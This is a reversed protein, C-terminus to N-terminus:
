AFIDDDEKGETVVVADEEEGVEGDNFVEVSAGAGGIRDGDKTKQVAELLFTVGRIKEPVISGDSQKVNVTTLYSMATVALRGYCGSYIDSEVDDLPKRAPGVCVPKNKSKATISIHGAFDPYKESDKADGDRFPHQIDKLKIEAGWTERAAELVATKLATMDADKPILLTTKYKGTAFQGSEDKKAVHPFVIRGIPTKVNNVFVPKFEKAM